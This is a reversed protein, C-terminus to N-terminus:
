DADNTATPRVVTVHPEGVAAVRAPGLSASCVLRNRNAVDILRSRELRVIDLEHIWIRTMKGSPAEM